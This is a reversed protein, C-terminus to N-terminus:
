IKNKKEDFKTIVSINEYNWKSFENDKKDLYKCRKKVEEETAYMVCDIETQSGTQYALIIYNKNM